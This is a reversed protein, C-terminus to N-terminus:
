LSKMPKVEDEWGDAAGRKNTTLDVAGTGSLGTGDDLLLDASRKQCGGSAGSAEDFDPSSRPNEETTSNDGNEGSTSVTSQHDVSPNPNSSAAKLGNLAFTVKCYTKGSEEQSSSVDGDRVRPSQTQVLLPTQAKTVGGKKAELLYGKDKLDRLVRFASVKKADQKRLRRGSQCSTSGVSCCM